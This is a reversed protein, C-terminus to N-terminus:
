YQYIAREKVQKSNRAKKNPITCRGQKNNYSPQTNRRERPNAASVGEGCTFDM